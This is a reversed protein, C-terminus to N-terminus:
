FGLITYTFRQKPFNLYIGHPDDMLTVDSPLGIRISWRMPATIWKPGSLVTMAIPRYLRSVVDCAKSSHLWGAIWCAPGFSFPYLLLILIVVVEWSAVSKRMDIRRPLGLYRMLLASRNSKEFRLNAACEISTCHVGSAIFAFEVSNPFIKEVFQFRKM